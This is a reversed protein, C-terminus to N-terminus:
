SPNFDTVLREVTECIQYPSEYIGLTLKGSIGRQQLQSSRLAPRAAAMSIM